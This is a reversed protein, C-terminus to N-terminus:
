SPRPRLRRPGRGRDAPPRGGGAGHDVRGRFGAPGSCSLSHRLRHRVCLLFRGDCSPLPRELARNSSRIRPHPSSKVIESRPVDPDHRRSTWIRRTHSRIVARAVCHDDARGVSRRRAGALTPRPAVNGKRGSCAPWRSCCLCWAMLVFAAGWGVSIATGLAPLGARLHPTAPRGAVRSPIGTTTLVEAPLSCCKPPRAQRAPLESSNRCHDPRGASRAFVVRLVVRWQPAGLAHAAERLSGPM